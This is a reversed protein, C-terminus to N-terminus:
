CTITSMRTKKKKFDEMNMKWETPLEEYKLVHQQKERFTMAYKCFIHYALKSVKGDSKCHGFINCMITTRTLSRPLLRSCATLMQIYTAYNPTGYDDHARLEEYTECAIDFAVSKENESCYACANIVSTFVVTNPKATKVGSLYIRKMRQLIEYAKEAKNKVNSKAFADICTTFCFVNPKVCAPNFEENSLELASLIADCRSPDCPAFASIVANYSFVDPKVNTNLDHSFINNMNKLIREAHSAMELGGARAYADILANYTYTNPRVSSKGEDYKQQMMNLIEEAREAAGDVGCGSASSWADIAITYSIVDPNADVLVMWQLINECRTAASSDGSKSWADLLTNYVVTDVAAHSNGANSENFLRGIIKQIMLAAIKHQKKAWANLIPPVQKIVSKPLKGVPANAMSRDLWRLWSFNRHAKLDRGFTGYFGEGSVIENDIEHFLTDLIAFSIKDQESFVNNSLFETKSLNPLQHNQPHTLSSNLTFDFTIAHLNFQTDYTPKVFSACSRHFSVIVVIYRWIYWCIRNM